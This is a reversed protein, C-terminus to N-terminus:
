CSLAHSPNTVSLNKILSSCDRGPDQIMWPLNSHQQQQQQQQQQQAHLTSGHEATAPVQYLIVQAAGAGAAAAVAVPDQRLLRKFRSLTGDGVAGFQRDVFQQATHTCDQLDHARSAFLTCQLTCGQIPCANLVPGIVAIVLDNM